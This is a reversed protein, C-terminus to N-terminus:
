WAPSRGASSALPWSLPLNPQGVGRLSQSRSEVWAIVEEELPKGQHRALQQLGTPSTVNVEILREGILDLGVFWLGRASLEVGVDRVLAQEAPTLDAPEVAGGVHINARIDHGRPVRRIAGLVRGDLVLVRKDGERVVPLYEQLLAKRRGESTLLDILARADPDNARLLVVGFGGAGDLPKLVGSGGLEDLFALLKAPSSSVMTKPIYKPFQLAILKENADRLGAPSNVVFTSKCVLDLQQTLYLYAADFPPDKRIFVADLDSLDLTRTEGFTVHPSVDRVVIATADAMVRQNVSTIDGPLSHWCRHGRASAGRMFAFSTSQRAANDRSSGDRFPVACNVELNDARLYTQTLRRHRVLTKAAITDLVLRSRAPSKM